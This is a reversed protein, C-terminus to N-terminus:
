LQGFLASLAQGPYKSGMFAEGVLFAAVGRDLMARVQSPQHIGSETVVLVDDPIQDLLNLTTELRTEFTILNRNNIGIIKPKLQLAANLEAADHVEILVDLDLTLAQRHLTKLEDFDLASVILLICDAGLARSETIQYGDVIFEKRLVPLSVAQHAAQLHADAGQFYKEDTLVSLCAAGAAEYQKAIAAPRYHRRIMGKSPSAKKLEAIVAPGGGAIRGALAEVFGAPPPQEAIQATLQEVPLAVKRQAVECRKNALIAHLINM